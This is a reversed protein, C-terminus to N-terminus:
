KNKSIEEWIGNNNEHYTKLDKILENANTYKSSYDSFWEGFELVETAYPNGETLCITTSWLQYDMSYYITYKYKYNNITGYFESSNMSNVFNSYNVDNNINSNIAKVGTISILRSQIKNILDSNTNVEFYPLFPSNKESYSSLFRSDEGLKEKMVNIVDEESYYKIKAYNDTGKIIKEIDSVQEDNINQDLYITMNELSSKYRILFIINALIITFLIICISIIIKNKNDIKKRVKKLYDIKEIQNDYNDNEKNIENLTQACKKCNKLHNEVFKKSDDNLVGDSYSLLLDQVINCEYERNM